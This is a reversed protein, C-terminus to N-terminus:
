ISTTGGDGWLRTEHTSVLAACTVPFAVFCETVCEVECCVYITSVRGLPVLLVVPAPQSNSGAAGSSEKQQVFVNNKTNYECMTNKNTIKLQILKNLFVATECMEEKIWHVM